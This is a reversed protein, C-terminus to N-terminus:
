FNSDKYDLIRVCDGFAIIRLKIGHALARVKQCDPIFSESQQTERRLLTDAPWWSCWGPLLIAIFILSVGSAISNIWLFPASTVSATRVTPPQHRSVCMGATRLPCGFSPALAFYRGVCWLPTVMQASRRIWGSDVPSVTMIPSRLNRHILCNITVPAVTAASPFGQVLRDKALWVM